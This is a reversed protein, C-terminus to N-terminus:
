GLDDATRFPHCRVLRQHGLFLGHGAGLIRESSLAAALRPFQDLLIILEFARMAFEGEGIQELAAALKDEIM